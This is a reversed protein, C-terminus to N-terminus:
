PFARVDGFSAFRDQSTYLKEVGTETDTVRLVFDAGTLGGFFLWFHGTVARGDVMKVVVEPNTPQFFWFTGAADGELDGAFGDGMPGQPGPFSFELEVQFRGDLLCHTRPGPACTGGEQAPQEPVPLPGQLSSPDLGLPLAGVLSDTGVAQAPAIAALQRLTRADAFSRFTGAPKAFTRTLGTQLDEVVVRYGVNTLGAVFAWHASTLERGDLVKVALEPNDRSYFSFTAASASIPTGQPPAMQGFPDEIEARVRFRGNGLCVVGPAPTCLPTPEVTFEQIVTPERVTIASPDAELEAQTYPDIGYTSVTLEATEPDVAFETWGYTHARVYGGSALTADVASGALGMADYGLSALQGDLLQRFFEDKAPRPLTEYFAREQESLLGLGTALDVVTPGLPADFAVAGTIVEFSGATLQPRFPGLQYTLNNVLTGHLDAAIFVVNTIFSRDIFALLQAREAAYGEFRDQAFFPGLNQIPEPVVVFKWTVGARHAALLDAQLAALQSRGLMTRTPDFARALFQGVQQPDTPDVPPLETDRFSRADLLFLAADDGFRRMRYLKREGAMRPELEEPWREEALPNYEHFVDLGTEYLESDNILEAPDDAFRPDSTTPAGGAFDNTVEHDDITAYVATSQRAAAWADLGFREAYVEQHKLRFEEPTRAQLAPVAPSPFDAYITDGLEVFFDLEREPINTIAPYPALEGRWDGSVGFRLGARVGPPVPTEFTGTAQSSAADTARYHYRTGPVLDSIPIRVPVLPETVTFEEEAVITDFAPDTAVEVTGMGEATSHVWLVISTPTADGAAVGNPLTAQAALPVTVLLCLLTIALRPTSGRGPRPVADVM